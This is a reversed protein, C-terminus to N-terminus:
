SPFFYDKLDADHMLTKTEIYRMYLATNYITNLFDIEEKCPYPIVFVSKQLQYFGVAKLRQRLADRAVKHDDPIDSLVVRWIGDWKEQPRVKLDGFARALLTDIGLRTLRLRYGEKKDGDIKIFRKEKLYSAAKSFQKKEYFRRRGSKVFAAFVNPAVAAVTVVGAVALLVLVGRGIILASEKAKQVLAEKRVAREAAVWEEKLRSILFLKQEFLTKRLKYKKLKKERWMIKIISKEVKKRKLTFFHFVM